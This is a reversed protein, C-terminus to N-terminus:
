NQKRIELVQIMSDIADAEMYPSKMKFRKDHKNYYMRDLFLWMQSGKINEDWYAQYLIPFYKHRIEDNNYSPQHHIVIWPASSATEGVESRKPYGHIDLYKEIKEMNSADAEGMNQGNKDEGRVGQDDAFIAELYAKKKEASDLATIEQELTSLTENKCSFCLLISFFILPLLKIKM